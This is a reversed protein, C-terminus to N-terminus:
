ECDCQMQALVCDCPAVTMLMECCCIVIDYGSVTYQRLILVDAMGVIGDGSVDANVTNIEPMAYGSVIYQRLLLADLINAIGDDNVDGPSKPPLTESINFPVFNLKSNHTTDTFKNLASVAGISTVIFSSLLIITLFISLIKNNNSKM